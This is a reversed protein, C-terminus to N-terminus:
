SRQRPTLGVGVGAVRGTHGGTGIEGYKVGTYQEGDLRAWTWGSYAIGVTWAVASRNEIVSTVQAGPRLRWTGGFVIELNAAVRPFFTLADLGTIPRGNALIRYLISAALTPANVFIQVSRIVGVTSEDLLLSPGAITAGVGAPLVLSAASAFFDSATPIPSDEPLPIRIARDFGQRLGAPVPMTM